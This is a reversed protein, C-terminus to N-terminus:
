VKRLQAEIWEAEDKFGVERCFDRLHAYRAVPDFRISEYLKRLDVPCLHLPRSDTEPLSNTGNMECRFYICHAIGFMHSTEHALVKCSRRLILQERDPAEQDWFHPDYRAFSYVGVREQLSAQGFVFNWAPDPYLDRMTVGLVCYADRPVHQKLLALIDTTLLQKKHTLHNMRETIKGQSTSLRNESSHSESFHTASLIPLVRVPLAFFAESFDKLRSLAAGQAPFEELPQLCITRRTDNPFNPRARLFDASTQGSEHQVALWDEPGPTNIPEFGSPDLLHRVAWPFTKYRVM